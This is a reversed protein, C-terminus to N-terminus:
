GSKRRLSIDLGRIEGINKLSAVVALIVSTIIKRPFATLVVPDGNIYLAIREAQPKIFGTELLDALGQIDDLSFQRASTDLRESAAIALLRTLGSLLPGVERRHVEIKPVSLRKFGEGLILDYDEGFFREIEPITLAKSCPKILVLRDPTNLVVAASGAELHRWSDKGSSDFTAEQAHKITAIKYGRSGLERVLKEILTTKGVKSRGVISVIPPM